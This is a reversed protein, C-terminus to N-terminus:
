NASDKKAGLFPLRVFPPAFRRHRAFRLVIKSPRLDSEGVGISGVRDRVPTVCSCGVLFRWDRTPASTRRRGREWGASYTWGCGSAVQTEGRFSFHFFWQPIRSANECQSELHSGPPGTCAACDIRSFKLRSWALRSNIM